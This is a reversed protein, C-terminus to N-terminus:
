PHVQLHWLSQHWMALKTCALVDAVVLKALVTTLFAWFATSACHFVLVSHCRSAKGTYSHLGLESEYYEQARGARACPQLCAKQGVKWGEVLQVNSDAASYAWAPLRCLWNTDSHGWANLYIRAIRFCPDLLQGAQVVPFSASLHILSGLTCTLAWFRNVKDKRINDAIMSTALKQM